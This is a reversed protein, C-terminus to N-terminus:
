EGKGGGDADNEDTDTMEHSSDSPQEDIADAREFGTPTALAIEGSGNLGYGDDDDRAVIRGRTASYILGRSGETVWCRAHGRVNRALSAFADRHEARSALAQSSSATAASRPQIAERTTESARSRADARPTRTSEVLDTRAVGRM